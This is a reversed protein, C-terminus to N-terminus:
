REDLQFKDAWQFLECSEIEHKRYKREDNADANNREHQCGDKWIFIIFPMEILRKLLKALIHCVVKIEFESFQVSLNM